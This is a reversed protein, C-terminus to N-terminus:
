YNSIINFHTINFHASFTHGTFLDLTSSLQIPIHPNFRLRQSKLTRNGFLSPKALQPQLVVVHLFIFVIVACFHLWLSYYRYCYLLCISPPSFSPSFNLSFLIIKQVSTFLHLFPSLAFCSLTLSSSPLIIVSSFSTYSPHLYKKLTRSQRLSPLLKPIVALDNIVTLNNPLAARFM